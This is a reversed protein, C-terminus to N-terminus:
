IARSIATTARASVSGERYICSSHMVWRHSSRSPADLPAAGLRTADRRAADFRQANDTPAADARHAANGSGAGRTAISICELQMLSSPNTEARAHSVPTTLRPHDRATMTRAHGPFREIDRVLVGSRPLPQFADASHNAPSALAEPERLTLELDQATHVLGDDTPEFISAQTPKAPRAERAEDAREAAQSRVIRERAPLRSM